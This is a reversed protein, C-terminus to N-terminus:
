TKNPSATNSFLVNLVGCALVVAGLLPPFRLMLLPSLVLAGSAALAVIFMFLCLFLRLIKM